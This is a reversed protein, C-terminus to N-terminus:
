KGVKRLTKRKHGYRNLTEEESLFQIDVERLKQDLISFFLDNGLVRLPRISRRLRKSLPVWEIARDRLEKLGVKQHKTKYWDLNKEMNDRFVMLIKTQLRRFYYDLSGFFCREEPILIKIHSLKEERILGALDVLYKCNSKDILVWEEKM